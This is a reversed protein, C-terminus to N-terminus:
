PCDQGMTIAVFTKEDSRRQGASIFVRTRGDTSNYTGLCSGEPYFQYVIKIWGMEIMKDKYFQCVDAPDDNTAYIRHECKDCTAWKAPCDETGELTAGPYVPINDWSFEDSTQEQEINKPKDQSLNKDEIEDGTNGGCTILFISSLFLIPLYSKKM